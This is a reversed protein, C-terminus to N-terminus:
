HWHTAMRHLSFHQIHTKVASPTLQYLSLPPLLCGPPRTLFVESWRAPIALHGEPSSHVWPGLTWAVPLVPMNCFTRNRELILVPCIKIAYLQHAFKVTANGMNRLSSNSSTLEMTQAGDGAGYELEVSWGSDPILRKHTFLKGRSECVKRWEGLNVKASTLLALAESGHTLKEQSVGNTYNILMIDRVFTM